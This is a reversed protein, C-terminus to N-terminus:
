ANVARDRPAGGPRPGDGAHLAAAAPALVPAEAGTLLRGSETLRSRAAVVHCFEVLAERDQDGVPAVMGGIRWGQTSEQDPHCTAVTLRLRVPRTGGEVRPLKVLLDVLKGVEVSQPSLLGAGSTTLDLVRVMTDDVFAGVDTPTRYHHRLQRRRSVKGLAATVLALEWVGLVM